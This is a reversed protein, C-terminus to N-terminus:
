KSRSAGAVALKKVPGIAFAVLSAALRFALIIWSFLIAVKVVCADRCHPNLDSDLAIKRARAGVTRQRM